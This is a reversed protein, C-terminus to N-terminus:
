DDIPRKTARPTKLVSAPKGPQSGKPPKAMGSVSNGNRGAGAHQGKIHEAVVRHGGGANPYRSVYRGSSM